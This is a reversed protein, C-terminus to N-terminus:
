FVGPLQKSFGFWRKQLGGYGVKTEPMVLDVVGAQDTVRFGGVRAEYAAGEILPKRAALLRRPRRNATGRLITKLAREVPELADLLADPAKLLIARRWQGRLLSGALDRHEARWLIAGNVLAEDLDDLADILM